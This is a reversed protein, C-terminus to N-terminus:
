VYGLWGADTRCLHIFEGDDRASHSRPRSQFRKLGFSHSEHVSSGRFLVLKLYRNGGCPNSNQGKIWFNGLGILKQLKTRVRNFFCSTGFVVSPNMEVMCRGRDMIMTHGENSHGKHDYKDLIITQCKDRAAWISFLLM